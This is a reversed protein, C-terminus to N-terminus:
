AGEHKLVFWGSAKPPVIMASRCSGLSPQNRSFQTTSGILAVRESARHPTFEVYRSLPRGVDLDSSNEM